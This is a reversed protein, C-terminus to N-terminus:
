FQSCWGRFRTRIRLLGRGKFSSGIDLFAAQAEPGGSEIGRPAGPLPSVPNRSRTREEKRCVSLKAPRTKPQLQRPDDGAGKQLARALSEAM